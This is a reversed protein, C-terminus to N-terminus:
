RTVVRRAVVNSRPAPRAAEPEEAPPRQEAKAARRHQLQSYIVLWALAGLFVTSLVLAFIIEKPM